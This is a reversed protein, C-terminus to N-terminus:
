RGVKLTDGRAKVAGTFLNWWHIKREGGYHIGLDGPVATVKGSVAEISRAKAAIGGWDHTKVWPGKMM